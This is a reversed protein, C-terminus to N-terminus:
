CVPRAGSGLLFLLVLFVIMDFLKKLIKIKWASMLDVHRLVFMGRHM